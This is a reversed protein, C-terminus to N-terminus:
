LFEIFDKVTDSDKGITIFVTKKKLLHVFLTIYEHRKARSVEDLGITVLESLDMENVAKDIYRELMLWIKDDSVKTLQSVKLVLM